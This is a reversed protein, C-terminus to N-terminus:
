SRNNSNNQIPEIPRDDIEDKLAMKGYEEYDFGSKKKSTYLHWVYAYLLFVLLITIILYAWARMEDISM